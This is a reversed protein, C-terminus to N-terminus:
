SDVNPETEQVEVGHRLCINRQIMQKRLYPHLVGFDAASIQQGLHVSLSIFKHFTLVFDLRNRFKPSRLM